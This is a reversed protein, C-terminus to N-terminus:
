RREDLERAERELYAKFDEAEKERWEAFDGYVLGDFEEWPSGEKTAAEVAHPVTATASPSASTQSSTSGSAATAGTPLLRRASYLKRAWYGSDIRSAIM